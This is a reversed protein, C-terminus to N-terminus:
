FFNLDIADYKRSLEFLAKDGDRKVAAIIGAVAQDVDASVERKQGLLATFDREFNKDRNDLRMPM